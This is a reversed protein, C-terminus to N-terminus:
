RVSINDFQIITPAQQDPDTGVTFGVSGGSLSEESLSNIIKENIFFHYDSGGALVRMTNTAKGTNIYSSPIWDTLPEFVGNNNKVVTYLGKGTIIFMYYNSYDKFRYVLGFFNEEPGEVFQMDASLNFDSYSEPEKPVIVYTLGPIYAKLEYFGDACAAEGDPDSHEQWICDPGDFSDSLLFNLDPAAAEANYEQGRSELGPISSTDTENVSNAINDTYINYPLNGSLNGSEEAPAFYKCVIGDKNEDSEKGEFIALKGLYGLPCNAISRPIGVWIYFGVLFGVLALFYKLSGRIRNV